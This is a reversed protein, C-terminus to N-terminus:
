NISSPEFFLYYLPINFLGLISIMENVTVFRGKHESWIKLYKAQWESVEYNNVLSLILFIGLIGCLIEFLM